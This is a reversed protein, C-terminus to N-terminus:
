NILMGFIKNIVFADNDNLNSTFLNMISQSSWGRCRCLIYFITHYGCAAGIPNQILKNTFTWIGSHSGVDLYDEWEQYLPPLGLPDYYSGYGGEDFFFAVWHEGPRSSEDTNCVFSFPLRVVPPLREQPYVGYFHRSAAPDSRILRDIEYSTLPQLCVGNSELFSSM